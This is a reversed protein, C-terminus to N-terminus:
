LSKSQAFVYATLNRINTKRQLKPPTVTYPHFNHIDTQKITPRMNVLTQNQRQETSRRTAHIADRQRLHNFHFLYNSGMTVRVRVLAHRKHRGRTLSDFQCHQIVTEKGASEAM